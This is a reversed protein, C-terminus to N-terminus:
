SIYFLLLYSVFSAPQYIQAFAVRRAVGDSTLDEMVLPAFTILPSNVPTMSRIGQKEEGIDQIRSCKTTEDCSALRRLIRAVPSLRRRCRHRCTTISKCSQM